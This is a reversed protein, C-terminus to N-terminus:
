VRLGVITVLLFFKMSAEDFRDIPPEIGPVASANQRPRIALRDHFGTQHLEVSDAVFEALKHHHWIVHVRNDCGDAFMLQGVNKLGPFREGRMLEIPNKNRGSADPLRLAEIVDDPACFM